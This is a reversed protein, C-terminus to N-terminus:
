SFAAAGEPRRDGGELKKRSFAPVNMVKALQNARFLWAVQHLTMPKDSQSRKAAVAIAISDIKEPDSADLFETVQHELVDLSQTEEIWHRKTMERIPLSFLRAKRAVGSEGQARAEEEDMWLDFKSQLNLWYQATTGTAESFIRAMPAAISGKGNIVSNIRPAVIGTIEAFDAQTWSRDDLIKKLFVGPHFGEAMRFTRDM